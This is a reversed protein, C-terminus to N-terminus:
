WVTVSITGTGLTQTPANVSTASLGAMALTVKLRSGGVTGEATVRGNQVSGSTFVAAEGLSSNPPVWLATGGTVKSTGNFNLVLGGLAATAGNHNALPLPTSPTSLNWGGWLASGPGSYVDGAHGGGRLAVASDAFVFGALGGSIFAVLVLRRLM